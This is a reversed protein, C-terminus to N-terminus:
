CNKAEKVRQRTRHSYTEVKNQICEIIVEATPAFLMKPSFNTIKCNHFSDFDLFPGRAPLGKPRLVKDKTGMLRQTIVHITYLTNLAGEFMGRWGVEM